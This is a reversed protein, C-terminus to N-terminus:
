APVIDVYLGRGAGCNACTMRFVQLERNAYRIPEGPGADLRAKCAVCRQAVLAKELKRPTIRLAAAPVTGPPEPAPPPPKADITALEGKRPLISWRRDILMGAVIVGAVIGLTGLIVAGSM